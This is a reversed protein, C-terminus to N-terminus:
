MLDKLVNMYIVKNIDDKKIIFEDVYPIMKNNDLVIIKQKYNDIINVVKYEKNEIVVKYDLLDIYTDKIDDLEIFVDNNKLYEINNISNIGKLKLMDFEKHRRYSEITYEKDNIYIKFNPVFVLDKGSFNSILRIEGKIGHTNVYKGIKKKM